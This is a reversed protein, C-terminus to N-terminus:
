YSVILRTSSASLSSLNLDPLPLHVVKVSRLKISDWALIEVQKAMGLYFLDYNPHRTMCTINEGAALHLYVDEFSEDFSLVSLCSSTVGPTM